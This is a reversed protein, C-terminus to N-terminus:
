EELRRRAQEIAKKADEYNWNRACDIAHDVLPKLGGTEVERSGTESQASTNLKSSKSYLM